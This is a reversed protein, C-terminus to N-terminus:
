AKKYIIGTSLAILVQAPAYFTWMLISSISYLMTDIEKPLSIFGSLNFLGVNIDCLLFLTMGAAFLLNNKDKTNTAAALDARITNTLICIFYFVSAILLAELEVGFRHLTYCIIFTMLLQFVLWAAFSRFSVEPKKYGKDQYKKISLRLSYLVQVIIFTLVGYFFYDLILIFLDSIVTFFLATKLCFSISKDQSESFLAYCFCM